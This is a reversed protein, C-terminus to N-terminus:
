PNCIKCPKYGNAIAWEYNDTYGKNSEKIKLASSCDPYHIKKTNTNLVYVVREDSPPNVTDNRTATDAPPAITTIETQPTYPSENVNVSIASGDTTFVITGQLDTRFVKINREYLRKLVDDDPHGYSNHLGCSIVAYSPETKKLFNASTSSGSGHHGVKLVDCKINTWIGDEEAKEADGTFLFKRDNYTLKIVISNNNTEEGDYAKPAVVEAMLNGEDAIVSGATVKHVHTGGTNLVSLIYNDAAEGDETMYFNRIQFSNIVDALGGTHDDHAHTAVLYDITDYGESFIYTVIKDGSGSEGADILMTKGDPLEIFTSDAQGVDIFHVSMEGSVKEPASPQNEEATVITTIDTVTTTDSPSTGSQGNSSTSIGASSSLTIETKSENWVPKSTDTGYEATYSSGSTATGASVSNDSVDKMVNGAFGLGAIIGVAAIIGNKTKM